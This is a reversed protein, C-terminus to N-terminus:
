GVRVPVSPMKTDVTTLALEGRRFTDAGSLTGRWAADGLKGDVHIAMHWLTEIEQADGRRVVHGVWATISGERGFSVTFALQDGVISGTLPFSEGRCLGIAPQFRGSLRGDEEVLHVLSQHQNHWTGTITSM